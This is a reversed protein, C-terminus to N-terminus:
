ERLPAERRHLAVRRSRVRADPGAAPVRWGQRLGPLRAPPQHPPVRPRRGAGQDDRGLPHRGEHRARRPDHLEAAACFRPIYVGSRECAEIVLEGPKAEIEKGDVTITVTETKPQTDTM